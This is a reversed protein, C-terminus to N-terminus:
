EALVGRRTFAEELLTWKDRDQAVQIWNPGAVKVIEDQWRTHPRGVLRKGRPGKWRTIRKTWRDDQLRAVHGAWRWKLKQAHILADKAKSINRIKSHRIKQRKNINLM